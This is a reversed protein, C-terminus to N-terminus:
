KRTTLQEWVSRVEKPVRTLKLLKVTDAPVLTVADASPDWFFFTSGAYGIYRMSTQKDGTSAIGDSGPIVYSYRQGSRIADANVKGQGFAYFPLTVAAVVLTSRLGDNPLLGVLLPHHRLPFGLVIGGFPAAVLWVQPPGFYVLSVLLFALAFALAHVHKNLWIGLPTNRGGGEPLLAKRPSTEGVALGILLFIFASGVPWAAVKVVDTLGLYELINVGFSGWFGWLYLAGVAIFYASILPFLATFKFTRDVPVPRSSQDM